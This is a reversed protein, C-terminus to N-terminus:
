CKWPTKKEEIFHKKLTDKIFDDENPTSYYQETASVKKGKAIDYIYNALELNKIGCSGCYFADGLENLNEFSRNNYTNKTLYVLKSYGNRDYGYKDFGNRDFGTKDFGKRNYGEKDYGFINYKFLM